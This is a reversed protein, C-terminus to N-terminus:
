SQLPDGCEKGRPGVTNFETTGLKRMLLGVHMTHHMFADHDFYPAFSFCTFYTFFVCLNQSILFLIELILHVYYNERFVLFIYQKAFIHPSSFRLVKNLFPLIPCFIMSGSMKESFSLSIQFLPFHMM